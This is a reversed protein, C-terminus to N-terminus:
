EGQSSAGGVTSGQSSKAAEKGDKGGDKDFLILDDGKGAGVAKSIEVILKKLEYVEARLKRVEQVAPEVEVNSAAGQCIKDWGDSEFDVGVTQEWEEVVDDDEEGRSRNRAISGATRAEYWAAIVLVPSYCIGMVLDNFQEFRNKPMWWEFLAIVVMEVLNFPPIYVNEDPARVFQMTKQAFLAMFEDNANDYIDEYASNYLAILINLL